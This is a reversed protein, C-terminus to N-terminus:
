ELRDSTAIADHGGVRRGNDSGKIISDCYAVDYEPFSLNCQLHVGAVRRGSVQAPGGAPGDRPDRPASLTSLPPDSTSWCPVTETWKQVADVETWGRDM